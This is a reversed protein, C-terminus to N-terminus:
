NQNLRRVLDQIPISTGSSINQNPLLYNRLNEQPRTHNRTKPLLKEAAKRGVTSAIAKGASMAMEKVANSSLFNGIAELIGGGGIIYKRKFGRNTPILM